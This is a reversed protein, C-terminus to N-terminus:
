VFILDAGDAAVLEVREAARVEAREAPFSRRDGQCVLQWVVHFIDGASETILSDSIELM